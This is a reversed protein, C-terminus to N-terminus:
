VFVFLAFVVFFLKTHLATAIRATRRSVVVPLGTYGNTLHSLNLSLHIFFITYLIDTLM